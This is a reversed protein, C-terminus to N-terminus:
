HAYLREMSNLLGGVTSLTFMTQCMNVSTFGLLSSSNTVELKREGNVNSSYKM